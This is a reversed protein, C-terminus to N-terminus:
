DIQTGPRLRKEYLEKYSPLAIDTLEQIEKSLKSMDIVDGDAKLQDVCTSQYAHHNIGLMSTMERFTPSMNWYSPPDASPSWKMMQRDYTLDVADCYLQLTEEPNQVLDDADVIVSHQHLEDTVYKYLDVLEQFICRCNPLYSKIPFPMEKIMVAMSRFVKAPHRVMFTHKFGNPLMDYNGDVKVTYAPDKVIILQKGTHDSELTKKVWEYSYEPQKPPQGRFAPPSCVREPGFCCATGYYEFYVECEASSSSICRTLVTSLSRPVSWIAVKNPDTSNRNIDTSM